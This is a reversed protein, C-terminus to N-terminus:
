DAPFPRLTSPKAGTADVSLHCVRCLAGPPERFADAHCQGQDCPAHEDAGPPRATGAQISAPDHCQPCGLTPHAGHPFRDPGAVLPPPPPATTRSCGILVAFAATAVLAAAIIRRPQTGTRM